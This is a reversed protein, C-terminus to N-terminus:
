TLFSSLQLSPPVQLPLYQLLYPLMTELGVHAASSSRHRCGLSEITSEVASGNSTDDAMVRHNNFRALLASNDRLMSIPRESSVGSDFLINLRGCSRSSRGVLGAAATPQM